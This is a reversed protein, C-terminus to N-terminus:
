RPREVGGDTAPAVARAPEATVLAGDTAKQVGDVVVREGPQVGSEIIRLPAASPGVEVRKVKVRADPGVVALSYQGQVQILAAEPVVLAGRGEDARRMRVRGFQGPRLVADPNPFLAQLQITGTTPDVQRNVAVIVGRRPYTSGDALILELSDDLEVGRAMAAFQAEAWARDREDLKKLRDAAKVYDVESLPFNVRIPQVDSVTTLLTPESQGVLNGIRVQALGAIGAVPSRIETYGLNLTAQKLAAQAVRVQEGADLAAAQADEVEQKSVVRAAGISETRARRAGTHAAATQARALTAKASALAADFESRDISFLPQGAAVAAGDKYHQAQLVGRVRARIEVNVYGDLSAVAELYIPVDKKVVAAVTVRPPPPPSAKAKTGCASAPLVALLLLLTGERARRGEMGM